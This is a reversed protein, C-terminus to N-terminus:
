VGETAPRPAVEVRVFMGTMMHYLLHCHFAWAGPEEFTLHAEVTENPPVSITHKRPAFAAPGGNQLEMFVGHLHMPHEMMTENTMLLRVREGVTLRIPDSQSLKKDNLTWFYREMDGTLRLAVDRTPARVDRNPELAQLDSYNLKKMGGAAPTHGMAAHDMESMPEATAGASMDMGSMDHDMGPMMAMTRLPRPDLEPIEGQVGPHEALTGRAYGSRDMTQAFVTYARGGEPQVIVDYTEAVAIRFEDVRVPEVDQGDAQVVTMKLGPIQVDFFTMAAANIFRLRVREGPRFEGTWNDEPSTGNLLYTYTAGTVDAIDTPDMRMKGWSTRDRIVAGADDFLGEVFEPLTRKGYNYYAGDGKLNRLVQMPDEDTWDSLVMTYERDYRVPDDAAPDIVLPAYMGQQEQGGSHSHYWYTGAQRVKFRYTFTEGPKIGEYSFGPVGDMDTPVLLGHWHISTDEDLNNTVRLVAEQGEKLRLLPGPIMDNIAPAVTSRDGFRVGRQDVVLDYEIPAVSSGDSTAIAAWLREPRGSVGASVTLAAAVRIFDRRRILSESENIM